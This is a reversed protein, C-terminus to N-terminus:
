EHLLLYNDSLLLNLIDDLAGLSPGVGFHGDSAFKSSSTPNYLWITCAVFVLGEFDPFNV